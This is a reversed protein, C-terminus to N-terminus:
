EVLKGPNMIGRPDFHRCLAQLTSIGLQTKEAALYERHDTGVGHHHSITGQQEIISKSAAAKLRQWRRYTEEPTSALRFCYTTYLSCGSSYFHSLHSFAHVKEGRDELGYRLSDEVTQMTQTVKDWTVATELTDIAYGEDWLTNRLYPARFRTKAWANGMFRHMNVANFKSKLVPLVESKAYKVRSKSGTFGLMLMCAEEPKIGRMRLYKKIYQNLRDHGGLALQSSTEEANSLRIMSIPFQNQALHQVARQAFEWHPLFMGYFQELEPLPSIMVTAESLIGIRGESGLFIEKLDPGAASSPHVPLHLEGQPTHVNGGCFLDDIRGYGFSQQGSSKTAIWGGLSSYEFSQPYHGLRYGTKQLKGELEPGLIGAQFTALRSKENIQLMKNLRNLSLTIVPRDSKEPNIHGLVSTGGGYPILVSESKQAFELVEQLQERDSPSAVGDPFSSIQGSRLSIWDPMSQGRAHLLRSQADRSIRPHEPLKSEPVKALVSEMDCDKQQVGEGTKQILLKKAGPSLPMYTATDGWGNWRKM